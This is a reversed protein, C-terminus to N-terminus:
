FMLKVMKIPFVLFVFCSLHMKVKGSYFARTLLYNVCSAQTIGRSFLIQMLSKNNVVLIHM